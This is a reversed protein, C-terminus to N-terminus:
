GGYLNANNKLGNAYLCIKYLQVIVAGGVIFCNATQQDETCLTSNQSKERNSLNQTFDITM